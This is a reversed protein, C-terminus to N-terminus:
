VDWRQGGGEEKSMDATASGTDATSQFSVPAPHEFSLIHSHLYTGQFHFILTAYWLCYMSRSWIRGGRAGARIRTEIGHNIGVAWIGMRRRWIGNGM